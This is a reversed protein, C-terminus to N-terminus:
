HPVATLTGTTPPGRRTAQPRPARSPPQKGTAPPPAPHLPLRSVPDEGATAPGLSGARAPRPASGPGALGAETRNGLGSAAGRSTAGLRAGPPTRCPIGAQGRTSSELSSPDQHPPRHHTKKRWRTPARTAGPIAMPTSASPLYKLGLPM